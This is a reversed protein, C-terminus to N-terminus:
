YPRITVSIPYKGLISLTIDKPDNEIIKVSKQKQYSYICKIEKIANIAINCNYCNRTKIEKKYEFLAGLKKKKNVIM